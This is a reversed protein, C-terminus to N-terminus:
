WDKYQATIAPILVRKDVMTLGDDLDHTETRLMIVVALGKHAGGYLKVGIIHKTM